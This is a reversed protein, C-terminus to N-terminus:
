FLPIHERVERKRQKFEKFNKRSSPSKANYLIRESKILLAADFYHTRRDNQKKKNTENVNGIGRKRMKLAIKFGM